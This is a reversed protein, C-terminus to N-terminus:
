ARSLTEVISERLAVPTAALDNLEFAQVRPLYM